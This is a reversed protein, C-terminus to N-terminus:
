RIVFRQENSGEATLVRLIYSGPAVRGALNFPHSRGEALTRNERHLVRGNMDMVEVVSAGSLESIMINMEGNSPNPHVGLRSGKAIAPVAAGIDTTVCITFAGTGMFAYVRALYTSGVLLDSRTIQETGNDITADSCAIAMPAVCDGQLLELVPDMGDIGIVEITHAESTAVFAYWIDRADDAIFGTCPSPPLSADSGATTGPEPACVTNVPLPIATACADNIPPAACSSATVEISYEGAASAASYVAYHYTGAPLESFLLVANGNACSTTNAASFAIPVAFTCDTYLRSGVIGTNGMTACLDLQLDQCETLVFSHWVSAAGLGETDLAGSNNGTWVLSGAPSLVSPSSSSCLDNAPVDSAGLVCITLDPSSSALAGYHYVRLLYTAGAETEATLTESAAAGGTADACGLAVLGNCPGGYIELVPDFPASGSVIVTTLVDTAEFSFWGDFATLSTYGNCSAPPMSQTAGNLTAAVPVCTSGVVLPIADACGDNPLGGGLALAEVPDGAAATVYVGRAAAPGITWACLSGLILLTTRM